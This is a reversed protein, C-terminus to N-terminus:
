YLGGYVFTPFGQAHCTSQSVELWVPSGSLKAALLTAYFRRGWDSSTDWRLQNTHNCYASSSYGDLNVFCTPDTNHCGLGTVLGTATEAASSTTAAVLITFLVLHRM